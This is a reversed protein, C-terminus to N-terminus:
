ISRSWSTLSPPAFITQSRRKAAQAPLRSLPGSIMASTIMLSSRSRSIPTGRGWAEEYFRRTLAKNDETGM